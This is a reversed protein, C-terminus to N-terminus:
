RSDTPTSASRLSLLRWLQTLWFRWWGQTRRQVYADMAADLIAEDRYYEPQVWLERSNRLAYPQHTLRMWWLLLGRARRVRIKYGM